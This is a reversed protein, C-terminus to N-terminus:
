EADELEISDRLLPLLFQSFSRGYDQSYDHAINGALIGEAMGQLATSWADLEAHWKEPSDVDNEKDPRKAVVSNAWNSRMHIALDEPSKLQALMVGDVGSTSGFESSAAVLAYIPLQPETLSDVNLSRGNITGTKYDIVLRKGGVNDIRDMRLRLPIGALKTEILQEVAIVEFDQLRQKEKEELWSCVLRIVREKEINLLSEGFRAVNFEPGQLALECCDRVLTELQVSNLVDLAAKSKLREWVHQMTDHVLIGQVRHDLGEAAQPFERLNLRYKLFAFFPSSAYEKFLGTGGRISDRQSPDIARVEDYAPMAVTGAVKYRNGIDRAEEEQWSPLLSCPGQPSGVDSERCHSIMVLPASALLSNLLRRDRRLCLSPDSDELGAGQQLELPLFPSPEVRRPLAGDDLGMIWVADFRLGLADDYQMIRVPCRWDRSVAFRKTSLIHQLWSLASDHSVAGLQRDLARFVDMAQSFGRRCQEVVSDNDDVNPWGASLLLQDFFRVWESPLQAVPMTKLLAALDHLFDGVGPEAQEMKRALALASKLSTEPGLRDRWRLDLRARISRAEPWGRVFRSRLIRSFQELPLAKPALSILDWASKILPYSLLTESGDFLWPERPQTEASPFLDSPYLQRQLVAQLVPQYQRIDPVLVALLKNAHEGEASLYDALWAVLAECEQTLQAASQFRPTANFGGIALQKIPLVAACQEIFHSAAPSLQLETSLILQDPLDLNGDALLPLLVSPLQQASLAQQEDLKAQMAQQWHYFAQYEQSFLYYDRDSSLRYQAHLQFADVFQRAIAMSNLCNEPFYPSSEIIDRALALLQIPRLVQKAPFSADWLEAFWQDLPMVTITEIFAQDHSGRLQAIRERCQRASADSPMLVVSRGQLTLLDALELQEM